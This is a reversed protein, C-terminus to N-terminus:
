WYSVLCNKPICVFNWWRRSCDSERDTARRVTSLTCQLWDYRLRCSSRCWHSSLRHSALWNTEDDMTKPRRRSRSMSVDVSTYFPLKISFM